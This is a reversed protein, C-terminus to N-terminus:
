WLQSIYGVQRDTERTGYKFQNVQKASSRPRSKLFFIQNIGPAKEPTGCESITFNKKIKVVSSCKKHKKQV